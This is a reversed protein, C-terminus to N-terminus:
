FAMLQNSDFKASQHVRLLPRVTFLFINQKITYSLIDSVILERSLYVKWIIAPASTSMVSWVLSIFARCHASCQALLDQMLVRLFCFKCDNFFDFRWLFLMELSPPSCVLGSRLIFSENDPNLWFLFLSSLPISLRTAQTLAGVMGIIRALAFGGGLMCNSSSGVASALRCEVEFFDEFSPMMAGRISIVLSVPSHMVGFLCKKALGLLFCDFYCMCWCTLMLSALRGSASSDIGTM